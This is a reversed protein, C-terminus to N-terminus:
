SALAPLAADVGFLERATGGLVGELEEPSLGVESVYAIVRRFLDDHLAPFDTGLLLRDAGLSEVACRLAPVHGHGITDYWMRKAAISPLEPTEPAEWPYQNDLRQMLLPLAGGLHPVVIKLNPYRSPIGHTILDTVAITDEIPAGIMWRAHVLPSCTYGAPHLSLVGGRRDLEELIPFFIPDVISRGQITTSMAVGVCGLDDLARAMEELSAEVHPHPLHALARFRRPHARVIEAYADNICVAAERASAEDAFAPLLPSTTIVQMDIGCEDMLAFRSDMEADSDGGDRFYRGILHDQEPYGFRELVGLYEKPWIHAHVDIHM